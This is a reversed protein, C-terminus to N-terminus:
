NQIFKIDRNVVGEGQCMEEYKGLTEEEISEYKMQKLKLSNGAVFMMLDTSLKTVYFTELEPVATLLKKACGLFVPPDLYVDFKLSLHKIKTNADFTGEFVRQGGYFIGRGCRYGGKCNKIELTELKQCRQLIERIGRESFGDLSVLTKLSDYGYVYNFLTPSKLYDLEFKPKPFRSRCFIREVTKSNCGSLDLKKLRRMNSVFKALGNLFTSSGTTELNDKISVKLERVKGAEINNVWSHLDKMTQLSDIELELVKLKPFNVVDRVTEMKNVKIKLNEITGAFVGVIKESEDDLEFSVQKFRQSEKNLKFTQLDFLLKSGNVCTKESIKGELQNNWAKSVESM